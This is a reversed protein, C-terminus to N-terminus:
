YKLRESKESIYALVVEECIPRKKVSEPGPINSSNGFAQVYLLSCGCLVMSFPSIREEYRLFNVPTSIAMSTTHRNAGLETLRSEVYVTRLTNVKKASCWKKFCEYEKEYIHLSKKPFTSLTATQAAEVIEEPLDEGSSDNMKQSIVCYYIPPLDGSCESAAYHHTDTKNGPIVMAVIAITLNVRLMYNFMFGLIVMLNLVQRCTLRHKWRERDKWDEDTMQRDDMTQRVNDNWSLRPRGRKKRRPPIWNYMKLPWRDSPMRRLHGYWTLRRGEITDMINISSVQMRERIGQNGLRELRSVSTLAQLDERSMDGQWMEAFLNGRPRHDSILNSKQNGCFYNEEGCDEDTLDETANNPPMIAISIDRASSIYIYGKEVDEIITLLEHLTFNM